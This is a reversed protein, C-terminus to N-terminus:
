YSSFMIATLIASIRRNLAEIELEILVLYLIKIGGKHDKPALFTM